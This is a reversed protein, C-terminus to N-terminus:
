KTENVTWRSIDACDLTGAPNLTCLLMRDKRRLVIQAATSNSFGAV